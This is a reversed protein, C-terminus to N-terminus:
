AKIIFERIAKYVEIPDFVVAEPIILDFIVTRKASLGTRRDFCKEMFSDRDLEEVNPIRSYWNWLRQRYADRAEEPASKYDHAGVARIVSFLLTELYPYYYNEMDFGEVTGLLTTDLATVFSESLVGLDKQGAASTVVIVNEPKLEGRKVKERVFDMRAGNVIRLGRIRRAFVNDPSLIRELPKILNDEIGAKIRDSQDAPIDLVIFAEEEMSDARGAFTIVGQKLLLVSEAANKIVDEKEGPMVVADQKKSRGEDYIPILEFHDSREIIKFSAPDDKWFGRDVMSERYSPSIRMRGSGDVAAYESVSGVVQLAAMGKEDSLRIGLNRVRGALVSEPWVAVMGGPHPRLIFKEYPYNKILEEPLSLRSSNDSKVEHSVFRRAIIRTGDIFRELSVQTIKGKVEAWREDMSDVFINEFGTSSFSDLDDFRTDYSRVVVEIGKRYSDGIERLMVMAPRDVGAKKDMLAAGGAFDSIEKSEEEGFGILLAMSRAASRISRALDERRSDVGSDIFVAYGYSSMKSRIDSIMGASLLEELRKMADTDVDAAPSESEPTREDPYTLGGSSTDDVWVLSGNERRPVIGSRSMAKGAFDSFDLDFAKEGSHDYIMVKEAGANELERIFGAIEQDSIPSLHGGAPGSFIRQKAKQEQYIGRFSKIEKSRSFTRNMAVIGKVIVASVFAGLVVSGSWAVQPTLYKWFVMIDLGFLVSLIGAWMFLTKASHSHPKMLLSKPSVLIGKKELRSRIDRPSYGTIVSLLGDFSWRNFATSHLMITEPEKEHGKLWSVFAEGGKRLQVRKGNFDVKKFSGALTPHLCLDSIVLDFRPNEEIIRQVQQLDAAERIMGCHAYADRVAKRHSERDDLILVSRVGEIPGKMRKELARRQKAAYAGRSVKVTLAAAFIAGVALMVAAGAGYRPFVLAFIASALVSVSAAVLPTRIEAFGERSEQGGFRSRIFKLGRSLEGIWGGEKYYDPFTQKPYAWLARIYLGKIEKFCLRLISENKEHELVNFVERFRNMVDVALQNKFDNANQVSVDDKVKKEHEAIAEFMWRLAKYHQLYIKAGEITERTAVETDDLDEHFGSIIRSYYDNSGSEESFHRDIDGQVKKVRKRISKIGTLIKKQEEVSRILRDAKSFSNIGEEVSQIDEGISDIENEILKEGDAEGYGYYIDGEEEDQEESVGGTLFSALMPPLVGIIGTLDVDTHVIEALLGIVGGALVISLLTGKESYKGDTVVNSGRKARAREMTRYARDVLSVFEEGEDLEVVGISVDLEVPGDIDAGINLRNRLISRAVTQRAASVGKNPLILIFDRGDFRAIHERQGDISASLIDAMNKLVTDGARYGHKAIVSTLGKISVFMVSLPKGSRSFNEILGPLEKEVYRRNYILTLPDILAEQELRKQLDKIETIDQLTSRIGTVNGEADVTQRDEIRMWIIEGNKSYYKREFGKLVKNEVIKERFNEKAYEREDPPIFEFIPRGLMEDVTYGLMEAEKTNVKLITGDRDLEHYGIPAEDFLQHYVAETRKQSKLARTYKDLIDAAIDGLAGKDFIVTTKEGYQQFRSAPVAFTMPGFFAEKVVDAKGEGKALLFFHAQSGLIGELSMTYATPGKELGHFEGKKEQITKDSLTVENLVAMDSGLDINPENYAVEGNVGMGLLFIDAGGKDRLTDMYGKPDPNKGIFYVSETPINAKKVFHENIFYAISSRDEPGKGKLEAVQFVNVMSAWDLGPMKSLEDFFRDMTRGGTLVINVPRGLIRYLSIIETGVMGASTRPFDESRVVHFGLSELMSKVLSTEDTSRHAIEFLYKIIEKRLSPFEETLEKVIDKTEDFFEQESDTYFLVVEGREAKILEDILAKAFRPLNSSRKLLPFYRKFFFDGHRRKEKAMLEIMAELAPRYITPDNSAFVDKIMLEIVVDSRLSSGLSAKPDGEPKINPLVIDVLLKKREKVLDRIFYSKYVQLIDRFLRTVEKREKQKEEPSDGRDSVKNLISVIKDPSSYYKIRATEISRAGILITFIAVFAAGLYAVSFGYLFNIALALASVSLIGTFYTGRLTVPSRRLFEIMRDKMIVAAPLGSRPAIINDYAAHLAMALFLALAPDVGPVLYAARFLAGLIVFGAYEVVNPEPGKKLRLGYTIYQDGRRDVHVMRSRRWRYIRRHSLSFLLVSTPYLVWISALPSIGAMSLLIAPLASLIAWSFVGEELLFSFRAAKEVSIFGREIFWRQVWGIFALPVTRDPEDRYTRRLNKSNIAFAKALEFRDEERLALDRSMARLLDKKEEQTFQSIRSKFRIMYKLFKSTRRLGSIEKVDSIQGIDDVRVMLQLLNMPEVIPNVRKSSTPSSREELPVFVSMYCLIKFSEAEPTGRVLGRRMSFANFIDIFTDEKVFQGSDSGRRQVYESRFEGMFDNLLESYRIKEEIVSIWYRANNETKLMETETGEIRGSAFADLREMKRAISSIVSHLGKLDPECFEDIYLLKSSDLRDEYRALLGFSRLKEVDREAKNRAGLRFAMRALLKYAAASADRYREDEFARRIDSSRRLFESNESRVIGRFPRVRKNMIYDLMRQTNAYRVRLYREAIPLLHKIDDTQGIEILEIVTELVKKVLRKEEVSVEGLDSLVDRINFAAARISSFDGDFRATELKKVSQQAWDREALVGDETEDLARGAMWRRDFDIRSRAKISSESREDPKYYRGQEMTIIKNENKSEKYVKIRGAYVAGAKRSLIKEKEESVRNLMGVLVACAAPENRLSLLRKFKNLQEKVYSNVEGASSDTRLSEIRGEFVAITEEMLAIIESARNLVPAVELLEDRSGERLSRRQAMNVFLELNLSFIKEFYDKYASEARYIEGHAGAISKKKDIQRKNRPAQSVKAPNPSAKIVAVQRILRNNVQHSPAGDWPAPLAGAFDPDPHSLYYRLKVHPKQHDNVFTIVIDVPYGADNREVRWEYGGTYQRNWTELATLIEEVGLVTLEKEKSLSSEIAEQLLGATLHRKGAPDSFLTKVQLKDGPDGGVVAVRIDPAAWAIDRTLFAAIVVVSIYRILTKYYRLSYSDRQLDM